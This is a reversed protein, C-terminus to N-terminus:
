QSKYFENIKDAVDRFEIDAAYIVKFEAIAKDRAGMQEYCEALEYIAEKKIDDMFSMENKAQILQDAGLDYKGDMKFARGLYVLCALRLRPNPLTHQFERIAEEYLGEQFLREALEFRLNPDHPYKEVMARTQNLRFDKLETKSVEFRDLLEANGPDADLKAQIEEVVHRLKAVTIDIEARELTTDTRGAPLGRAKLVWQLAEDFEGLQRYYQFIARYYQINDPARAIDEITRKILRRLVEQGELVSQAGEVVTSVDAERYEGGGENVAEWGGEKISYAVSARRVLSIAQTNSPEKALVDDGIRVADENRGVVYYAEGLELLNSINDPKMDRISERAFVATENLGLARAAGALLKHAPVSEPNGTLLKEAAALAKEPKQRVWGSGRLIFPLQRVGALLRAPWQRGAKFAKLQAARLVKRVEVCGPDRRLLENCIDMAYEAEGRSIAQGAREVQREVSPGLSSLSADSM